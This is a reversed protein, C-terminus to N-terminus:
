VNIGDLIRRITDSRNLVYFHIGPVGAKLLGEVQRRCHDVGITIQAEADDKSRELDALLRDPLCSKCLSTIRKVQALSLVPLLGPVIPRAVGLKSCRDRFRLFDDNDYFLQTFVADGGAAVKETLRLLDDEPSAADQHTEPYGAVGIGFEPFESKLLRVLDIAYRFGGEVATFSKQGAPPDGRLAMINAVGLKKAESLWSRIQDVTSGVCTLHATVPLQFKSVLDAAIRLSLDRTGGGAGYTISIFGPNYERFSAVVDYLPELGQETKPPYVEFTLVPKAAGYLNRIRQVSPM